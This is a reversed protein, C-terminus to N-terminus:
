TRSSSRKKIPTLRVRGAALDEAAEGTKRAGEIRSEVGRDAGRALAGREVHVPLRSRSRAQWFCRSLSPTECVTRRDKDTYFIGGIPQSKRTKTATIDATAAGFLIAVASDTKAGRGSSASCGETRMEYSTCRDDLRTQHAPHWESEAGAVACDTLEQQKTQPIGNTTAACGVTARTGGCCRGSPFRAGNECSHGDPLGVGLSGM